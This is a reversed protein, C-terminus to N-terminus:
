RYGQWQRSNASGMAPETVAGAASAAPIASSPAGDLADAEPDTLAGTPLKIGPFAPAVVTEAAEDIDAADSVGLLGAAGAIGVTDSAALSGAAGVIGAADSVGLSGPGRVSIAGRCRDISPFEPLFSYPSTSGIALAIRSRLPM